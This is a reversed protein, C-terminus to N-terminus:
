MNIGRKSLENQLVALKNESRALIPRIEAAVKKDLSSLVQNILVEVQSNQTSTNQKIAKNQQDQIAKQKNKEADKGWERDWEDHLKRFESDFKSAANSLRSATIGLKEKNVPDISGMKIMLSPLVEVLQSVNASNSLKKAAIVDRDTQIEFSGLEHLTNSISKFRPDKAITLLANKMGQTPTERYRSTSLYNNSFWKGKTMRVVQKAVKGMDEHDGRAYLSRVQDLLVGQYLASLSNTNQVLQSIASDTSATSEQLMFQLFNM